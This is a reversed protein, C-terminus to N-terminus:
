GAHAGGDAFALIMRVGDPLQERGPPAAATPAAGSAAPDPSAAVAVDGSSLANSWANSSTHFVHLQWGGVHDIMRLSGPENGLLQHSRLWAEQLDGASRTPAAAWRLLADGRLTWAVLQVGEDQRRTVRLTAGDFSLGPVLQTDVGAQLDAEWQAMTSQLRLLADMRGQTAGRSRVVMDVGQWAMGAMLALVFLAVLVEVLTFGRQRRWEHSCAPGTFAQLVADSRLPHDM